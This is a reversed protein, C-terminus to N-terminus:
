PTSPVVPFTISSPHRPGRHVRHAAKRFDEPRAQFVNVFSQPNRDALPFWTSQIQVMVRHGTLFTHCIDPLTFTLRTVEGPVLPAPRDYGHRYRARFPEGRVLQQYGGMRIGAPNPDPDPHDPTYVDILKVVWDGDTATSSVHLQVTIPGTVTLNEPLPETQYVLVDPRTAVFRQDEVMYAPNMGNGIRATYPVPKAPDSCYADFAEPDGAAPELGLRGEPHLHFTRPVAHAPPWADETRWRCTGTEFVRAEPIVLNTAGKLFRRFFALEIEDRFHVATRSRFSVPGLRDGDDYHWGGHSWPGMVLANFTGPNQREVARYTKLTGSLDEADFWGGVTLVAARVNRLRPTIDRARTWAADASRHVLDNWLEAKGKFFRTDLNALPGQELFFQYADPTKFDFPRPEDRTPDNVPQNFYHIFGFNHVLWFCGNHLADDGDYLDAVPAQPSVAKLAPHSEIMGAAAFFGPYSIGQMGVSGNHRPVHRVLWDITDYADTSEDTDRDALPRPRIPRVDVFDGESAYRGRVDQVAFIFRERVYSDPLGAPQAPNDITYPKQGYPTRVLLIPYTTSDDKPTYISTYLRVGDRMPIRFESKTYTAAFDPAEAAPLRGPRLILGLGLVLVVALTRSDRAPSRTM